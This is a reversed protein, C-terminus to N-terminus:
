INYTGERKLAKVKVPIKIPADIITATRFGTNGFSAQSYAKALTKYKPMKILWTVTALAFTVMALVLVWGFMYVIIM